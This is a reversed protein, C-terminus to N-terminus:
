PVPALRLVQGEREQVGKYQLPDRLRNNRNEGFNTRAISRCKEDSRSHVMSFLSYPWDPYTPRQYCHSVQPFSAALEGVERIREEPVKWCVMGNSTFGANQHRLVAAFRRM